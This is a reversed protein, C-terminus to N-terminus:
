NPIVGFWKVNFPRCSGAIWNLPFDFFYHNWIVKTAKGCVQIMMAATPFTAVNLVVLKNSNFPTPFRPFGANELLNWCIKGLFGVFEFMLFIRRFGVYKWFSLMPNKWHNKYVKEGWCFLVLGSFIYFGVFDFSYEIIVNNYRCFSKIVVVYQNIILIRIKCKNWGIFPFLKCQM